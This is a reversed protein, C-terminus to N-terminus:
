SVDNRLKYVYEMLKLTQKKLSKKNKKLYILKGINLTSNFPIYSSRLSIPLIPTNIELALRVAGTKPNKTRRLGGEPFIGVIEGSEILKKTEEYAQTPNFVPVCAAWKRCITEGLFWWSGSSLLHVKKNIKKLIPYIILLSDVLREHNSVVIFPIKTPVNEMGKIRRILLRCFPYFWLKTIPYVM